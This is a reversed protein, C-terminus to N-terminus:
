ILKGWFVHNAQNIQFEFCLVQGVYRLCVCMFICESLSETHKDTHARTHTHWRQPMTQYGSIIQGGLQQQKMWKSYWLACLSSLVGAAAAAARALPDICEDWWRVHIIGTFGLFFFFITSLCNLSATQAELASTCDSASATPASGASRWPDKRASFLDNLKHM